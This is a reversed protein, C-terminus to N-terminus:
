YEIEKPTIKDGTTNDLKLTVAMSPYNASLSVRYGIYVDGERIEGISCFSFTM